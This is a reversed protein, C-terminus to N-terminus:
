RGNFYSLLVQASKLSNQLRFISSEGALGASTGEMHYVRIEPSYLMLGNHNKVMRHLIDEEMYMFTRDDFGDFKTIFEPSFILFCGHLTVDAHPSFYIKFDVKGKRKGRSCLKKYCDYLPKIKYKKYFLTHKFGRIVEEVDKESYSALRMPNSTFKGDGSLIMPGLVDFHSQLYIKKIKEIMGNEFILVDSNSCIIFDANLVKKAYEYGVNNGRAFGLNEETELVTVFAKDSFYAKLYNFSDNMSHNDVIVINYPEEVYKM